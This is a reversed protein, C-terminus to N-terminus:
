AAALHAREHLPQRTIKADDGDIPGAEARLRSRWHVPRGIGQRREHLIEKLRENGLGRRADDGGPVGGSIHQVVRSTMGTRQITDNEDSRSPAPRQRGHGAAITREEGLDPAGDLRRQNTRQKIAEVDVIKHHAFHNGTVDVAIRRRQASRSHRVLSLDDRRRSRTEGRRREHGAAQIPHRCPLIEQRKGRPGTRRKQEDIAGLRRRPRAGLHLGQRRQGADAGLSQRAALEGHM